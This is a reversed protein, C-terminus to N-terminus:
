NNNKKLQYIDHRTLGTNFDALEIVINVTPSDTRGVIESLMLTDVYNHHYYYFGGIALIGSLFIIFLLKIKM